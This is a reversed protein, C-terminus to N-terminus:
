KKLINDATEVVVETEKAKPTKVAEVTVKKKVTASVAAKLAEIQQTSEDLKAEYSAITNALALDIAAQIETADPTEVEINLAEAIAAKSGFLLIDKTRAYTGNSFKINAEVNRSRMKEIDTFDKESLKITVGNIFVAAYETM